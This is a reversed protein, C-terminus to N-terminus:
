FSVDNTIDGNGSIPISEGLFKPEPSFLCYFFDKNRALIERFDRYTQGVYQPSKAPVGYADIGLAHAIYLARSLHYDQTVVIIKSASFIHKARYMSDYTSFGAHDMFIDESPVGANIAFTKMVGVENHSAQGHDGSMILKNSAKSQYLAIGEELRDALMLSPQNGQIGAGLILICDVDSLRSAEETTLMRDKVSYKVYANISFVLACGLLCLSLLVIFVMLARKKWKSTSLSM